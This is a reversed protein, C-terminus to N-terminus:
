DVPTDKDYYGDLAEAVGEYPKVRITYSLDRNDPDDKSAIHLIADDIYGNGLFYIIFRDQDSASSRQVPSNFRSSFADQIVFYSGLERKSWELNEVMRWTPPTLKDKASLVISVPQIKDGSDPDTYERETQDEYRQFKYNTDEIEMKEEEETPDKSLLEDGLYFNQKETTELWYDGSELMFVIRYSNKTLLALDAASRIDTTIQGLKTSLEVGSRVSFQPMAVAYMVAIIAIVIIIELLTMGSRKQM